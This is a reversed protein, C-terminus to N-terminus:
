DVLAATLLDLEAPTLGQALLYARMSGYELDIRQLLDDMVAAPSATVLEVIEPSLEHGSAEFGRLMGDAWEGRLNEETAAYDAVIEDRDVGAARLAFAVVLGTRDKGATCHVLVAEDDAATAIVRIAAALHAGREDVIHDYVPVLGINGGAQTVPAADDFVPLHHVTAGVNDLRSPAGRREDTGRLDVVHAIGLEVLRAQGAEDIKHLADSRFLRGWRSAGDAAAYGGTDRLNYLGPLEHRRVPTAADTLDISM